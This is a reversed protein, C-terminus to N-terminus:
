TGYRSGASKEKETETEKETGADDDEEDEDESEDKGELDAATESAAEIEVVLSQDDKSVITLEAYLCDAPELDAILEAVKPNKKLDITIRQTAM